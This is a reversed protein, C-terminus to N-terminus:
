GRKKDPQRRQTEVLLDGALPAAAAAGSAGHEVVVACVYRPQELPAYGVFLAHHQQKWELEQMKMGRRREEMTIRRVQSTGTKGGFSYLPDKPQAARATGTPSNIVADMGAKVMAMHQPHFGLPQLVKQPHLIKDGMREALYPKVPLGGNVLRAGMTALQLPTALTFGQGIANVLSEGKNWSQKLHTRKWQQDPVIGAREGPIDLDLKEGLGLRRAMMAIKDIGVDLAIQYFYVDCSQALAEHLNVQGHGGVKWCHFRHDGLDMHGPCFIHRDESIVGAELGALATVMKYTSGPPYQGAIVKNTLPLAPDELLEKWLTNPIGQSFVNPDYAPHSAMAYIAGSYADMIIASASRERGLRSQTFLQLEADLTLHLPAGSIGESKKLVRIKRGLSNVEEEAQGAVGRLALDYYKELGIKGMQFGPLELLPDTDKKIDQENAIGVYGLVHATAQKLPYSRVKGEDITIGPLQLLGVEIAAMQDWTLNDAILVPLFRRQRKLDRLIRIRREPSLPVVKNIQDLTAAVDKTQESVMLLRFDQINVALPVDFRDFIMGREPALLAMNVRNNEAMSLYKNREIVQLQFMRVGLVAFLVFQGAGLLLSRRTFLATQEKEYRSM